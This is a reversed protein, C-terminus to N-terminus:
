SSSLNRLTALLNIFAIAGSFFGVFQGTGGPFCIGKLRQFQAQGVVVAGGVEGSVANLPAAVAVQHRAFYM